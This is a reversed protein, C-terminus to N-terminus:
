GLAQLELPKLAPMSHDGALHRERRHWRIDSVGKLNQLAGDIHPLLETPGPGGSRQDLVLLVWDEVAAGDASLGLRLYGRKTHLRLVAGFGYDDPGLNEVSLGARSLEGALASLLGEGRAASGERAENTKEDLTTYVDDAKFCAVTRAGPLDARGEGRRAYAALAFIGVGLTFAVAALILVFSM